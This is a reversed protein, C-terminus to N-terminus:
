SLTLTSASSDEAEAKPLKESLVKNMKISDPYERKLRGNEADWESPKAKIGTSTFQVRGGEKTRVFIPCNGSSDELQYRMILRVSAM